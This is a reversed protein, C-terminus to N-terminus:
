RTTKAVPRIVLTHKLGSLSAGVIRPPVPVLLPPRHREHSGRNQSRIRVVGLRPNKLDRRLPDVEKRVARAVDARDVRQAALHIDTETSRKLVQHQSRRCVPVARIEPQQRRWPLRNVCRRDLERGARSMARLQIRLYRVSVGVAGGVAGLGNGGRHQHLHTRQRRVQRVGAHVPVRLFGVAAADAREHHLGRLRQGAVPLLRNVVIAPKAVVPVRDLAVLVPERDVRLPHGLQGGRNCLHERRGRPLVVVREPDLSRAVRLGLGRRRVADDGHGVRLAVGLPQGAPPQELADM